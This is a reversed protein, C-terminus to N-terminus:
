ADSPTPWPGFKEPFPKPGKEIRFRVRYTNTELQLFHAPDMRNEITTFPAQPKPIEFNSGTWGSFLGRSGGLRLNVMQFRRGPIGSPPEDKISYLIVAKSVPIGYPISYVLHWDNSKPAAREVVFRVYQGHDFTWVFKHAQESSPINYVSYFEEASLPQPGFSEKTKSCGALLAAALSLGLIPTWPRPNMPTNEFLCVPVARPHPQNSRNETSGDPSPPQPGSTPSVPKDHVALLLPLSAALLFPQPDRRIEFGM